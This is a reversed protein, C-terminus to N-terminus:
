MIRKANCKCEGGFGADGIQEVDFKEFMHGVDTQNPLQQLVNPIYGGTKYWSCFASALYREALVHATDLLSNSQDKFWKDVNLMANIAIYQLPPWGNPLDWQLTTNYYSTTLIGPYMELAHRTEDMLHSLIEQNRKIRNPVAGLWIPYLGAPTYDVNRANSTLNYDYFGVNEEDWFVKEFAELRKAAQRKYYKAKRNNKNHSFKAHWEALTSEMSWLLANLDVPVVNDTNLSRLLHYAGPDEPLPEKYRTWRSTYDWGSEAGAAIDAFLQDIEKDTFSVNVYATEYDELYSEPRPANNIVHYRNLTYAKKNKGGCDVQVTKNKMWFEYEKDLTPLAQKVYDEDGTANYYAKIMEVLFPPQSRNLYYIRAGNPIFGYTDVFELFNDIMDKAQENLGSLLLGRIVFYSDRYILGIIHTQKCCNCITTTQAYNRPPWFGPTCIYTPCIGSIISVM